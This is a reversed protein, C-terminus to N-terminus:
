WSSRYYLDWGWSGARLMDEKIFDIWKGLVKHTYDIDDWYWEDVETGGFFFGSSPPLLLAAKSEDHDLLQELVGQLKELDALAISTRECNDDGNQCNDVFWKHIHNAKRWQVITTEVSTLANECEPLDLGERVAEVLVAEEPLPNFRPIFKNGSLYMDLGM